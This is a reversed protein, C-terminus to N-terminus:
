ICAVINPVIERECPKNVQTGVVSSKTNLELKNLRMLTAAEDLFQEPGESQDISEKSTDINDHSIEQVLETQFSVKKAIRPLTNTKSVGCNIQEVEKSVFVDDNLTFNEKDSNNSLMSSAPSPKPSLVVSGDKRIPGKRMVTKRDLKETGAPHIPRFRGSNIRAFSASKSPDRPLTQHPLTLGSSSPLDGSALNINLASSTLNQHPFVQESTSPLHLSLPRPSWAQALNQYHVEQALWQQNIYNDSPPAPRPQPSPQSLLHSLGHHQAAGRAVTLSVRPGTQRMMEAAREQSVGLLSAGDCAVLQDGAQLRGDRAAAGGTVVSKVFIALSSMTGGRAAVISLGLGGDKSLLLTELEPECRVESTGYDSMHDGRHDSKFDSRFSKDEPGVDENHSGVTEMYINWYGSSGPQASFACLGAQQLPALAAALGSPVGRMIDSSYNDRPILLPQDLVQEELEVKRGQLEQLSDVSSHAARVMVGVMEPRAECLTLLRSVQVSNLSCCVSSLHAAEEPSEPPAQLLQAAQLLRALHCEAALELGQAQSWGQVRWVRPVLRSGWVSSSVERCSVLLNFCVRNIHHFLHSFLQITLSANVRCRRLVTMVSNLVSIIGASSKQDNGADVSVLNPIVLNLESQLLKVLQFFTKQVVLTLIEQAERAYSHVHKDSRLFHLFESANSLWFALSPPHLNGPSSQIVDAIVRSVGTLMQTLRMARVEPIIDPRYLTSARFRTAMYLIYAPALKFNVMTPDLHTIVAAFLDHETEDTFELVAPLIEEPCDVPPQWEQCSSGSGKRSSYQSNHESITSVSGHHIHRGQGSVFHRKRLHLSSDPLNNVYNYPLDTSGLTQQTFGSQHVLCFDTALSYPFGYKVLINHIVTESSDNPAIKIVLLPVNKNPLDSQIKVIIPGLEQYNLTLSSQVLKNQQRRREMVSEPNTLSRKLGASDSVRVKNEESEEPSCSIGENKEQKTFVKKMRVSLSRRFSKDEKKLRGVVTGSEPTEPTLSRM